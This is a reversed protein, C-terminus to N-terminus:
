LTDQIPLRSRSIRAGRRAVGVRVRGSASRVPVLESFTGEAHALLAPSLNLAPARATKGDIMLKFKPRQYIPMDGAKAGKLIKRVDGVL